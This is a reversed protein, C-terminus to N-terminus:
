FESGSIWIDQYGTRGLRREYVRTITYGVTVDSFINTNYIDIKYEGTAPATYNANMVSSSDKKFVAEGFPSFITVRFTNKDVSAAYIRVVDGENLHIKASGYYNPALTISHRYDAAFVEGVFAEGVLVSGLLAFIVLLRKKM